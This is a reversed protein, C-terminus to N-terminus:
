SPLLQAGPYAKRFLEDGLRLRIAALRVQEPTYEPHRHRIGDESLRRVDESMRLALALRGSPGLREWVAMQVRAAELSTDRPLAGEPM